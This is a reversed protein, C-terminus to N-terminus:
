RRPFFLSVEGDVGIWHYWVSVLRSNSNGRHLQNGYFDISPRRNVAIGTNPRSEKQILLIFSLFLTKTEAVDILVSPLKQPSVYYDLRRPFVVVRFFLSIGRKREKTTDLLDTQSFRFLGSSCYVPRKISIWRTYSSRRHSNNNGALHFQIVKGLTFSLPLTQYKGYFTTVNHFFLRRFDMLRELLRFYHYFRIIQAAPLREDFYIYGVSIEITIRQTSPFKEVVFKKTTARSDSFSCRSLSSKRRLFKQGSHPVKQSSIFSFIFIYDSFVFTELSKTRDVKICIFNFFASLLPGQGTPLFSTPLFSFFHRSVVLRQIVFVVRKLLRHFSSFSEDFRISANQYPSVNLTKHCWSRSVVFLSVASVVHSKKGSQLHGRSNRTKTLYQFRGRINRAHTHRRTSNKRRPLRDKFQM